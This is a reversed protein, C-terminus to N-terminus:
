RGGGLWFGTPYQYPVEGGVCVGFWCGTPYPNPVGRSMWGIM